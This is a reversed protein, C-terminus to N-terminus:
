RGESARGGIQEAITRLGPVVGPEALAATFAEDERRRAARADIARSAALLRKTAALSSLPAAAIRDALAAVAAGLREVPVSCLALGAEVAQEASLWEGSYFLHAARQPGLIAPLTASSGAEPVLGLAAFPVRFRANDAVIVIDVHGLLTFGIGVAPGAVAALLPKPFQELRGLFREYAARAVNRRSESAAALDHLDAGASFRDGGSLVVCSVGSDAGAEALLDALEGYLEADFANGAAPRNLTLELVRGRREALVREATGTKAASTIM